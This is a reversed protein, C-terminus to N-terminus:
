FSHVVGVTFGKTDLGGTAGATMAGMALKSNAENDIATYFGYLFTRKSLTKTLGMAYGRGENASAQTADKAMSYVARATYGSSLPVSISGITSKGEVDGTTSVDGFSHSVGVAAVGFDYGAAVSKFDRAAHGAGDLKHYGVALKVPKADWRVSIGRQDANADTTAASANTAVGAQVFLGQGIKPSIWKIVNRQDTGLETSTGNVATQAFNGAQSVFADHDQQITIDQRGFRIEGFNKTAFGVYAERNFTENAAVTTSGQSGNSLNVQSELRFTVANGGGIDERGFFGIRSVTWSGDNFRTYTDSGNNYQQISTTIWGDVGVTTGVQAQATTAAAALAMAIATKRM